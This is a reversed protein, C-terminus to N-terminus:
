MEEENLTFIIVNNVEDIEFGEARNGSAHSTRDWAYGFYDAADKLYLKGSMWTPLIDPSTLENINGDFTVSELSYYLFIDCNVSEGVVHTGTAGPASYDEGKICKVSYINESQIDYAVNAVPAETTLDLYLKTPEGSM